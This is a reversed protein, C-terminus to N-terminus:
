RFCLCLGRAHLDESICGALKVGKGKVRKSEAYVEGRKMRERSDEAERHHTVAVFKKPLNGSVDGLKEAVGKEVKNEAVEEVKVEEEVEDEVVGVLRELEGRVGESVKGAGYRRVLGNWLEGGIRVKLVKEM